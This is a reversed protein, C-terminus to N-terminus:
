SSLPSSIDRRTPHFWVLNTKGMVVEKWFQELFIWSNIFILILYLPSYLFLDVRRRIIAAYFGLFLLFLVYPVLLFAFAVINVLPLLFLIVSFVLGEAYTLSLQLSNSPKKILSHHKKLNQWGGCYWRRMQNVYEGLTAPDQTYAVANRNYVIPLYNEHLKYTFDLDETLTDHDFRIIRKLVDTRFAGACGPIVFLADLNAQAVKYL